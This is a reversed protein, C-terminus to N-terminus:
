FGHRLSNIGQFFPDGVQFASHQNAEAASRLPGIPRRRDSNAVNEMADAQRVRGPMRVRVLKPSRTLYPAAVRRTM